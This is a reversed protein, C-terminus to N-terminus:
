LPPLALSRGRPSGQSLTRHWRLIAWTRRTRRAEELFEGCARAPVQFLGFAYGLLAGLAAERGAALGYAFYSTEPPRDLLWPPPAACVNGFWVTALAFALDAKVLRPVNVGGFLPLVAVFAGVRTLILSFIVVLNAM